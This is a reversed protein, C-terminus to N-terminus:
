VAVRDGFIASGVRVHTGGLAIAKEFDSSMGMSLGSWKANEFWSGTPTTPASVAHFEGRMNMAQFHAGASAAPQETTTFGDSNM